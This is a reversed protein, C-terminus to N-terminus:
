CDHWQYAVMLTRVGFYSLSFDRDHVIASDYENKNARVLAAFDDSVLPEPLGTEPSQNTHLARVVDSFKKRTQKHLNSVEIRAALTGYDPHRTCLSACSQAALNDLQATTIGPRLGDIVNICVRPIDIMSIDLGYCLKELRNRIKDFSVDEHRGSRKVVYLKDSPRSRPNM